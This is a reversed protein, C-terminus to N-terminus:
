PREGPHGTARSGQETPGPLPIEGDRQREPIYECGNCDQDVGDYPRERAGPHIAPDGDDCDPGGFRVGRYGDGDRDQDERLPSAPRVLFPIIQEWVCRSSRLGDHDLWPFDLNRAGALAPSAPHDPFREDGGPFGNRVTLAPIPRPEGTGPDPVRLTEGGLLIERVLDSDPAAIWAGPDGHLVEADPLFGSSGHFPVALYVEAEIWRAINYKSLTIRVLLGGLGQAVLQVRDAGTYGMVASIFTKLDDTAEEISGMSDGERSLDPIWIEIPLFGADLLAQVVSGNELPAANGPNAGLWDRHSRGPESVLIVPVHRLAARESRSVGGGIGGWLEPPVDFDAPFGREDAGALGGIGLCLTLVLLRFPSILM